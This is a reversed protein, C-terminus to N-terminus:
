CTHGLVGGRNGLLMDALEPLAAINGGKILMLPTASSVADAGTAACLVDATSKAYNTMTASFALFMTIRAVIAPNAFNKGLGGFLQKVLIIAIFCGFLAQWVPITVPLNFALLIGTIVASFDTITVPKKMAKEYGWEFIICAAVCIGVIMLARFGFILTSAVIAPVLSIVVDLMIRNTSIPDKIHPSASVNLTKM